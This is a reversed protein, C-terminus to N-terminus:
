QRRPQNRKTKRGSHVTLFMLYEKFKEIDSKKAHVSNFFPNMITCRILFLEDTDKKVNWNRCNKEIFKKFGSSLITKSMIFSSDNASYNKLATEYLRKTQRNIEKLSHSNSKYVFTLINTGDNQTCFFDNMSNVAIELQQKNNISRKLIRGLGDSGFGLTKDTLYVAAAGAASRSGELTFQGVDKKKKFDVYAANTRYIYYDKASKCIFCGSSYPAYGLKHPDITISDAYKLSKLAYRTQISLGTDKVNLLSCFFGGYAADSHHWIKIKYRAEIKKIVKIIKDLPDVIGLETAALVSVVAIPLINDNICEHLIKELNEVDMKADANLRCQKLELTRSGGFLEVGKKWSYHASTPVILAFKQYKKLLPENKKIARYIMEYNAITGGSTFHGYATRLGMMAALRQIAIKEIKLGVKSSETSINNPNYMLSIFNGIFSPITFESYMHGIYRPSHRPIESSFLANLEDVSKIFQNRTNVYEKAKMEHANFFPGLSPHAKKRWTFWSRLCHSVASEVVTSNESNPALFYSKLKFDEVQCNKLLNM